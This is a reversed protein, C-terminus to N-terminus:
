GDNEPPITLCSSKSACNALLHCARLLLPVTVTLLGVAAVPRPLHFQRGTGMMLQLLTARLPIHGIPMAMGPLGFQQIILRETTPVSKCMSPTVRTRVM